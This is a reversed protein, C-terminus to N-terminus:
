FRRKVQAAIVGQSFDGHKNPLWLLNVGWERGEWTLVGGALPSVRESYGTVVGALGCAKWNAFRSSLPCWVAAGYVSDRRESNRYFGIALSTRQTVDTEIGLGLNTEEYDRRELHFSRVTSVGWTEAFVQSLKGVAIIGLITIVVGVLLGARFDRSM